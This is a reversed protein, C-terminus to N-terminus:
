IKGERGDDCPMNDDDFRAHEPVEARVCVEPDAADGEADAKAGESRVTALAESFGTKLDEMAKELGSRLHGWAEEGGDRLADLQERAEGRRSRLREIRRELEERAELGMQESRAKLKELRATWEALQAELKRRYDERKEM